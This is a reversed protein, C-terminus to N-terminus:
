ILLEDMINGLTLRDGIYIPSRPNLDSMDNRLLLYLGSSRFNRQTIAHLTRVLIIGSHEDSNLVYHAIVPSPRLYFNRIRNRM